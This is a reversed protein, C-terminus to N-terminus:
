GLTANVGFKVANFDSAVEASGVVSFKKEFAQKVSASFIGCTNAKVKIVTDPNCKYVTALTACPGKAGHNVIGAITADKNVVYSFLASFDTCNKNARLGVFLVKPQTYGGGVAFTTSDVSSKAIKIDASAGLTFPGQGGNVSTKFSSFNNIDVEGTITALSHVYTASLEAKECENGKFEAKVGPFPNNLSTEISTKCDSSIELKDLTFGSNHAWKATLKPVLKNSKPDFQTNTTLTTNFPGASKVKLTFKSDFDDNMLDTVSKDFDKFVPHSM